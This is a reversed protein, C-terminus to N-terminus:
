LVSYALLVLALGIFFLGFWMSYNVRRAASHAKSWEALFRSQDKMEAEREEDYRTWVPNGM